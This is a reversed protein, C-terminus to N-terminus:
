TDGQTRQILPQNLGFYKALEEEKAAMEGADTEHDFGVLHLMGHLFLLAIEEQTTCGLEQSQSIAFDISIVVTGLPMHPLPAELPFSLVDTPYNKGRHTNNLDCITKNDTLILEVERTSLHSAITELPKISIDFDTQNELTIM